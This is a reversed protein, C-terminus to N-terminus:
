TAIPSIIINLRQMPQAWYLRLINELQKLEVVIMDFQIDVTKRDTKWSNEAWSYSYYISCHFKYYIVM